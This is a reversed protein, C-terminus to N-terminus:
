IVMCPPSHSEWPVISSILHQCPQVCVPFVASPIGGRADIERPGSSPQVAQM